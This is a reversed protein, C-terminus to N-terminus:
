NNNIYFVEWGFWIHQDHTKKNNKKKKPTQSSIKVCVSLLFCLNILRGNELKSDICFANNPSINIGSGRAAGKERTCSEM